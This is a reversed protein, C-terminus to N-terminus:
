KEIKNVRTEHRGGAFGTTLFTEAIALLEPEAVLRAGLCLVNIDNHERALQASEVNWCNAARVGKHKNASLAMGTGSGCILIARDATGEEIRAAAPHAFDPYDVSDVSDTGLDTVDWGLQKACDKIIQKVAFGGHDAAIVLKKM